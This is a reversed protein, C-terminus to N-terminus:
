FLQDIWIFWIAIQEKNSTRPSEPANTNLSASTICRTVQRNWSLIECKKLLNKLHKKKTQKNTKLKSILTTKKQLM